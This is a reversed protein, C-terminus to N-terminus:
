KTGARLPYQNIVEDTISQALIAPDCNKKKFVKVAGNIGAIAEKYPGPVNIFCSKDKFGAVIRAWLHGNNGFIERVAYNQLFKILASHTVDTQLEPLFFNGGGSGGILVVLEISQDFCWKIKSIIEEEIDVVPKTCIIKCTPFNNLLIDMIAPSNTDVVTGDVIEDGTPIIAASNIM